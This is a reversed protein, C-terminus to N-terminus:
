FFTSIFFTFVFLEKEHRKLFLRLSQFAAAAHWKVTHTSVEMEQAIQAYTLGQEKSLKYVKKQQPSLHNIAAIFIEEQTQRLEIESPLLEERQPSGAVHQQYKLHLVQRRMVDVVENKICKHLYSAINEVQELTNRKEWCKLFVQQVIDEALCSDQTYTLALHYLRPFYLEFLKSFASEDGKRANSWLSKDYVTQHKM